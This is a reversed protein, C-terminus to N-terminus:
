VVIIEKEGGTICRGGSKTVVYTDEVGVIGFNEISRKPEIAVTMNESLPENFKDAIVPYEDIQLGVGHGLFKVRGGGIGMFGSLFGADLKSTASNYIESPINGPRLLAAAGKQIEMCKKHAAAAHDPPNQGFMYIQTRDTHYGNVGYGADIFVLDGKRLLRERDGVIPVAPCMGKM